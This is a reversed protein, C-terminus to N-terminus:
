DLLQDGRQPSRVLTMQTWHHQFETLRHKALQVQEVNAIEQTSEPTENVYFDHLYSDSVESDVYLTSCRRCRTFNYIGEPMLPRGFRYEVPESAIIPNGSEHCLYCARSTIQVTGIM